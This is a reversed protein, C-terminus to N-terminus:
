SRLEDITGMLAEINAMPHGNDIEVYMWSGGELVRFRDVIRHVEDRVQQPTGSTMLHGRDPHLAIAMHLERSKRALAEYDYLPLQPWVADFGTEALPELLDWCQGCTHYFAKKGAAHIRDVLQRYRPQFFRRWLAPSILLGNQTGFDDAVQIADYGAAMLCDATALRHQLIMDALRHIEPADAALDVLVDEFRRAAILVEFINCWGGKTFYDALSFGPRVGNEAVAVAGFIPTLGPKEPRPPAPPQYTALASWDDLPRELPHGNIGFIRYEWLVGWEDKWTDYYRGAADVTGPRPHPIDIQRYPGFDQSFRKTLDLLAQGHEHLAAASLRTEVPVIDVPEFALAANIRQKPTM